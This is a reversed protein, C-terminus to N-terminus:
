QHLLNDSIKRPNGSPTYKIPYGEIYKEKSLLFKHFDIARYNCTEYASLLILYKKLGKESFIGNVDKRYTAFHKFAHEANNNNWPVGDHDLFTFLEDRYKEFRKMFKIAIESEYLNTNMLQYFKDVDRKHKNLNRKKLGYKDITEVITRLLTSFNRTIFILEEDQQHKFLADNIDRVLHILCKQQKCKLSDYGKYFDSILVGDFNKILDPIFDTKRTETYIYFVDTMNTFVWVYGTEGKVRVKTEDMHIIKWGSISTVLRKYARSYYDSAITKFYYSNGSGVKGISIQFSDALTKEIKEFSIANVINQYIVWSILNHGYKIRIDKYKKPIYSKGCKRCNHYNANYKTIWRKIGGKFFKLDVVMKSIIRRGKNIDTSKCRPCIKSKGINIEQNVERKFKLNQNSRNHSKALSKESRIYIKNRQYDFYARKNIFDFDDFAFKQDGFHHGGYRQLLEEHFESTLKISSYETNNIDDENIIFFIFKTLKKLALCDEM